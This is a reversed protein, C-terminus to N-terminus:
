KEIKIPSDGTILFIKNKYFVQLVLSSDNDRMKNQDIEGDPFLIKIYFDKDVKVVDDAKLDLAKINNEKTLKLLESYIPAKSAKGNRFFYSIKYKQFYDLLNGVHDFDYHSAFISIDSNTCWEDFTDFDSALNDLLCAMVFNTNDFELGFFAVFCDTSVLLCKGFNLNSRYLLGGEAARTFLFITQSRFM